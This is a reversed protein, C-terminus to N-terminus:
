RVNFFLFRAGAMGFAFLAGGWFTALYSRSRGHRERWAGFADALLGNVLPSILLSLGPYPGPGVIRHPWVWCSVEGLLAGLLLVSIGAVIPHHQDRRAFPAGFVRAVSEVVLEGLGQFLLEVALEILFEIV